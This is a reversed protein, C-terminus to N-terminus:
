RRCTPSWRTSGPPSRPGTPARSRSRRLRHPRDTARRHRRLRRAVDHRGVPARQRRRLDGVVTAQTEDGAYGITVTSGVALGNDRAFDTSLAASTADLDALSGTAVEPRAVAAIAAPDVATAFDRDGDVQLLAGRVQAVDAVGPVQTSRTPGGHELVATGCPQDRRLRRHHGRGPDQRPQGQGVGRAGGDDDGALRRDDAGVRHGRHPAPQAPHEARGDARGRRLRPPLGLRARGLVPRGLVPSLLATGVLVGFAGAGLVYTPESGVGLLGAAMGAIGAALLVAGCPSGGGCAARPSPWTTACRRSRPCAAPGARRCTPPRWRSSCARRRPQRRGHAARAGAPERQPRPRVARLGGQHRDRAARRARAGVASGVFGVVAAELLM